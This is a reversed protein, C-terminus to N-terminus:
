IRGDYAGDGIQAAIVTFTDATKAAELARALEARGSVTHGAGGFATAIAAFDHRGFTVAEDKLQRQRQKLQILALSADVFVVFIPTLGLEAATALEGAVMLFGADGSFSVVPRDPSAIKAGMALPVACGMTCFASSQMLGRPESCAWMQSLFIRHAGSDATALTNAPLARRCEDIIAAPGWDDDTPFAGVLAAKVAAVEGDPWTTNPSIGQQLVELTAGTDSIFNVGSQHMYHANPVASIDIVNITDPDWVERWGPRMEIPDYGACIVLDANRVFPLLHTDALPSLGAGGLCLPHDEPLIGKAKYTTILPVGLTDCFSKLASGAGDNMADLGAIMVPRKADALWRRAMELEPGPAPVHSSAPPRRRLRSIAVQTNAVTIPVDIHVPGPRAETAIGVAKDAIIDASDATLCFSAKTVSAFVAAHDMVQHTYTQAENADVCGTLVILPVRDQFANAIANMGNMAGPGLTAVLIGPAGTRHYDGEAMFCASNEHKTLIFKIGAKTLADLLTLVEGGPMGYARRCGAQYLREALYDAARRPTNPM